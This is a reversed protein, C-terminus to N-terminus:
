DVHVLTEHLPDAYHEAFLKATLEGRSGVGVKEFVSKIHDRVTHGSLFLEAAIDPTSLGRAIARVVDRERATLGYAEVIIPAVEGSQAPEIVVAVFSDPDTEDMCSAHMVVWRGCRDRFRLRVPGDDYGLAVARARSVLTHMSTAYSRLEEPLQRRKLLSIWSEDVSGPGYIDSLWAKGDLNASVLLGRGDFLLVGPATLSRAAPEQVISRRRLAVGVAHSIGGLVKLDDADFAARGKDRYLGGIAWTTSGTRFAIRAEDDFGQPQLFDRYRPSRMPKGGAAVRLSGVPEPARALDRFLLLDNDHFEGHWFPWCLSPDLGEVRGPAAALLTTPDVGFWMSGDFPVAKAVETSLEAFFEDLTASRADARQISAVLRHALATGSVISV